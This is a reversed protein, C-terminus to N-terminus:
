LQDTCFISNNKVIVLRGKDKKGGGCYTQRCIINSIIAARTFDSGLLVMVESVASKRIAFSDGRIGGQRSM